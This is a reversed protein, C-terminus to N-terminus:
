NRRRCESITSARVVIFPERMGEDDLDSEQCSAEVVSLGSAKLGGRGSVSERLKEIRSADKIRM